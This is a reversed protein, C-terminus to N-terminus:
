GLLARVLRTAFEDADRPYHLGFGEAMETAVRRFLDMTAVLARAVDDTDYRAYVGRLDALARGDAWRELFRGRHWTDVGPDRAQAHWALVRVLLAKMPCDLCQIAVYLEGRKLKRATWVAHYWFDMSTERFAHEDPPAPRSRSPLGELRKELTGDKDVLIRAGRGAVDVVAPHDIEAAPVIAFDVDTGDSFLVRRERQGGIATAELFTLQVTGLAQVWREDELLAEPDRAFVVFDHDSWEDAPTDSRARSGVLAVARVGDEGRAWRAVLEEIV